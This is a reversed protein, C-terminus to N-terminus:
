QIFFYDHNFLIYMPSVFYARKFMFDATQYPYKISYDICENHTKHLRDGSTM